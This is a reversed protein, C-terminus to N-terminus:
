VERITPTQGWGDTLASQILVHKVKELMNRYSSWPIEKRFQLQGVVIGPHVKIRNAFNIIKQRGYLPKIRMIFNELESQNILFETAFADASKEIDNKSDIENYNTDEDVLETDFIVPNKLGDRNAVHGLEHALTFWFGDLRDLRLSLVIVPSKADLWFTVGDIKTHPLHEVILLRIGCESLVKPIQRIDQFNPLLNKIQQLGKKFSHDSFTGAHVAYALKKARYYWAFHSATIEQTSKRPAHAFNVPEDLKNIELFQCVRRSLVDVNESAEIWHRKIMEKIPAIQYLKSRLAIANYTDKIRWLQYASELNMWYQASTGFAQGLAKATEPSIARKGMILENIVNPNRGVIEALEVQSWNRADLEEKIFEGPPFVEAIKRDTM